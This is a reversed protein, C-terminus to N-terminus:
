WAGEIWQFGILYWFSKEPVIAGGMARLAGEWTDLARQMEAAVESETDSSQKASQILDTDDVFSYGVFRISDGSICARFYTGFGETRMVKLAPTSVVAWLMPGGGNGQSSGHLPVIWLNGGYPQESDGYVTRVTHELNQLTTFMCIIAGEPLGLHKLCLSAMSHLIRDYCSKADNSCLAGATKLQRMLDYSLRKNLAHTIATKRKRSGYQEEPLQNHKEAHAMVACGLFKFTCNAEPDFLVITRLKDV